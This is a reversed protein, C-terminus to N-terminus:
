SHFRSTVPIEREGAGLRIGDRRLARTLDLSRRRLSSQELLPGIFCYEDLHLKELPKREASEMEHALGAVEKCLAKVRRVDGIKM